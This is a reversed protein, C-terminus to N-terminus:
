LELRVIEEPTLSDGALEGSIEGNRLVLVRDCIDCLELEDSSAVVVAAGSTAVERALEHIASKAGVDVGQTPEDLLMVVPKMRLWKAIVVKQQNGGSLSPFLADPANPRIDLTEIWNQIEVSESKRSLAGLTRSHRRLDTLTCNERVSMIEISGQQHRDPPVFAVGARIAAIPSNATLENGNILVTGTRPEGGFILSMLEERGSGTLGAVGLIEGAYATLDVDLSHLGCIERAELVAAGRARQGSARQARLNENGVMLSILRAEDLETVQYTGIRNGNRLVTVRNAIEFVEDLRHSIYIIGVGTARVREIADFLVGVEGQPLTATPEDVVLVRTEDVDAIARAVAIGTREAAQLSRVPKRVDFSYGLAAVRQEAIRREKKWDIRGSPGTSFGRGLALNEVANMDQVLGLDQHVFRLGARRSAAADHVHVAEGDILVSTEEDADVAHFGSLIKVLTSKGSGNQGVVAHVEGAYVDLDVSDLALTAGFTKSANRVELLPRRHGNESTLTAM